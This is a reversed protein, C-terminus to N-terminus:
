QLSAVCDTLAKWKYGITELESSTVTTIQAGNQSVARVYVIKWNTTIQGTVHPGNLGYPEPFENIEVPQYL